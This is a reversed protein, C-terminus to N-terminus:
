SIDVIIGAYTAAAGHHRTARWQDIVRGGIIKMLGDICADFVLERGYFSGRMRQPLGSLYSTAKPLRDFVLKLGSADTLVFAVREGKKWARRHAVIVAQEWPSGHSDLDIVNFPELDICRLIRRNDGVFVARADRPWEQDIGVYSKARAWVKAHMVGDVGCFADLVYAKDAGIAKLVHERIEVKAKIAGAHNDTKGVFGMRESASLHKKAVRKVGRADM